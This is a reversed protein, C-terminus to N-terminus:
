EDEGDQGDDRLIADLLKKTESESMYVIYLPMVRLDEIKTENKLYALMNTAQYHDNFDMAKRRMSTFVPTDKGEEVHECLKRFYMVEGTDPDHCVICFKGDMWEERINRYMADYQSRMDEANEASRQIVRTEDSMIEVMIHSYADIRGLDEPSLHIQGNEDKEYREYIDLVLNRRLHDFDGLGIYHKGNITIMDM